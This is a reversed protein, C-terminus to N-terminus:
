EGLMARRRTMEGAVKSLNSILANLETADALCKMARGDSDIFVLLCSRGDAGIGLHFKELTGTPADM